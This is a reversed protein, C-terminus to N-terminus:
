ADVREGLNLDLARGFEVLRADGAEALVEKILHVDAKVSDPLRRFESRRM